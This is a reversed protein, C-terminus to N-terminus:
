PEGPSLLKITSKIGQGEVITYIADAAVNHLVETNGNPWRIEVKDMVTDSALGFHLRQDNSSLYSSGGRVEEIQSRTASSVTVRAGIAARNSKTGELKFLVRHNANRTVNLFVSPPAGVNFVVFDINGDNNLDGFAVGRRSQLQGDNLGATTSINEFTRNGRNHFLLIPERYKVESPVTDVEPYIHGNAMLLDPLGDNDFDIFGTGWGVYPFAPQGIQSEWVIDTFGLPGQNWYLDKPQNTYNTVVIDLKGDRDFDGFDVGM